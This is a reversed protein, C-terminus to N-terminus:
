RTYRFPQRSGSPTWRDNLISIVTDRWNTVVPPMSSVFTSFHQFTRMPVRDAIHQRLVITAQSLHIFGKEDPPVSESLSFAFLDELANQFVTAVMYERALDLTVRDGEALWTFSGDEGPPQYHYHILGSLDDDDTLSIEGGCQGCPVSGVQGYRSGSYDRFAPAQTRCRPCFIPITATIFSPRKRKDMQVVVTGEPKSQETIM